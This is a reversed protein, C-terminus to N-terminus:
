SRTSSLATVSSRNFAALIHSNDTPCLSHSDDVLGVLATICQTGSPPVLLLPHGLFVQRCVYQLDELSVFDTLTTSLLLEDFV